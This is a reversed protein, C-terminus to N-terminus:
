LRRLTLEKMKGYIKIITPSLCSCQQSTNSYMKELLDFQYKSIRHKLILSEKCIYVLNNLM